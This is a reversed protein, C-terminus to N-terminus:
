RYAKDHDPEVYRLTLTEGNVTAVARASRTVRLSYLPSGDPGHLNGLKELHVGQHNLLEGMTLTEVVELMKLVGKRVPLEQRLASELFSPQIELKMAGAEEFVGAGRPENFSRAVAAQVEPRWAWLQHEPVAVMPVLRFTGDEQPELDVPQGAKFTSPLTVRRRADPILLM